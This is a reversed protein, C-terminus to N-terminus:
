KIQKICTELLRNILENVSFGYKEAIISLEEATSPKILLNLRKSKTETNEKKMEPVTPAKMASKQSEERIQYNTKPASPKKKTREAKSPVTEAVDFGLINLVPNDPILNKKM